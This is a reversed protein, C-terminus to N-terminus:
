KGNFYKGSILRILFLSKIMLIFQYRAQPYVFIYFTAVSYSILTAWASGALGYKPILLFNLAINLIMGIVTRALSIKTFNENILYQSNATGLFVPIGAWIYITLVSAAEIFDPGYAITIIEESFITIPIAIGLSIFVMLDYLKQLRNNYLKESKKKANVIAPFLSSSIAMPIFYWGECLRVAADYIGVAESNMLEKLIVKDIRMYITVAITSFMLPWSDTLLQKARVKDFSWNFITGKRKQYLSWLGASLILKELSFIAAFYVLDLKIIIALIKLVDVVIFSAFKVIVPFKAEVKANFYFEIQDFISLVLSSSVILLILNEYTDAFLYFVIILLFLLVSSANKLVFATGLISESENEKKVFERTIINTLGLGAVATLIGILSTAYAFIGNLEAGLYRVVFIGILFNVVLRVAKETFLWSTNFFYKKFASGKIDIKTNHSESSM